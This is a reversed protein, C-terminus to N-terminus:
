MSSLARALPRQASSLTSSRLVRPMFREVYPKYAAKEVMVHPKQVVRAVATEKKKFCGSLSLVAGLVMVVLTLSRNKLM